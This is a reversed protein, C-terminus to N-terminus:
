AAEGKTPRCLREMAGLDRFIPAVRAAIENAELAGMAYGAARAAVLLIAGDATPEVIADYAVNAPLASM